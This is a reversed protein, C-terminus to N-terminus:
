TFGIVQLNLLIKLMELFKLCIKKGATQPPNLLIIDFNENIKEFGNRQIIKGNLKHFDLNRSTIQVARENIDSLTLDILPFIIKLSIGIAGYGCGLDLIKSNEQIVSKEILLKTGKDVQDPSFLGSATYLEIENDRLIEKIQKIILRSTPKETFYNETM